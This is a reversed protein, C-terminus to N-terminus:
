SPQTADRLWDKPAAGFQQKFAKSFASAGSYGLEDAVVKVARGALLERTALSLRWESLYCAPTTGTAQKFAAAFAARSMGAKSAMAALTWAEGPAEHMAVLARALRPDTLGTVLGPAIGAADPHDILWRLLQILVVEFLRDALLRAGCRGRDTEAFLLTLTQALGPVQSLPLVILPPLARVLPNHEDGDFRLTACTFDSGDVPPNHFAHGIARPYFLLSPETIRLRPNLGDAAHHEVDLEGRRLVHLFARGPQREFLSVGCLAGTHFLQARVRFRELLPSLRDLPPTAFSM